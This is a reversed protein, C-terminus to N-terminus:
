PAAQRERVEAVGDSRAAARSLRAFRIVVRDEIPYYGLRLYLANSVPNALDTFLVVSSAGRELALRSIAATVGGGYGRGRDGPPTYVPAVRAVGALVETVGAMAVPEHGVQWLMLQGAELRDRVLRDSSEPEHGTEVAFARQWATAIAADAVSAVRAEGAPAPDPPVLTGLRHLRQRQRVRFSHATLSSLARAFAMADPEAGNVEFPVGDPRALASALEIASTGPLQTILLAHPPTQLVAASARGTDAASSGSGGPSWWGLIPADAGFANPGLRRLRALVSILVTHREPHAFLLPRVVADYAAIDGTLTWAM